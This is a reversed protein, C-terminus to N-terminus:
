LRPEPAHPPPAAPVISPAIPVVPLRSPEAGDPAPAATGSSPPLMPLPRLVPVAEVTPVVAAARPQAGTMERILRLRTRLRDIKEAADPGYVPELALRKMEKRILELELKILEHDLDDAEDSARAAKDRREDAFSVVAKLEPVLDTHNKPRISGDKLRLRVAFAYEGARQAHFEFHGRDRPISQSKSWTRGDDTSYWLEVGTVEAPLNEGRCPLQFVPGRVPYTPIAEGSEPGGIVLAAAM